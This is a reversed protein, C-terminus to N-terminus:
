VLMSGVKGTTHQSIPEFNNYKCHVKLREENYGTWVNLFGCGKVEGYKSPSVIMKSVFWQAQFHKSILSNSSLRTQTLIWSTTSRLRLWTVETTWPCAEASSSPVRMYTIQAGTAAATWPTMLRRSISSGLSRIHPRAVEPAKIPCWTVSCKGHATITM